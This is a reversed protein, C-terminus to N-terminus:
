QFIFKEFVRVKIYKVIHIFPKFHEFKSIKCCNNLKNM